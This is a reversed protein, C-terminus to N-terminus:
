CLKIGTVIIYLVSFIALHTYSVAVNITRTIFNPGDVERFIIFLRIVFQVYPFAFVYVSIYQFFNNYLFECM